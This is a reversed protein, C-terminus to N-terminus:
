IVNVIDGLISMISLTLIVILIGAGVLPFTNLSDLSKSQREIRNEHMEDNLSNFLNDFQYLAIKSEGQEVMQYISIMVNQIVLLSFNNSFNIFPAVSKDSDIEELLLSIREKMWESSYPLLKEFSKYVNNRNSIFIEFYSLLSIFENNREEKLRKVQDSYRSLYLYDLLPIFSAVTIVIMNTVKLFFMLAIIGILLINIFILKTIEKGFSLGLYNVNDKIRTSM